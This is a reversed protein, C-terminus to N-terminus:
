GVRPESGLRDLFEFPGNSLASSHENKMGKDLAILSIIFQHPWHNILYACGNAVISVAVAVSLAIISRAM